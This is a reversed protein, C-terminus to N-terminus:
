KDPAFGSDARTMEAETFLSHSDLRRFLKIDFRLTILAFLIIFLIIVFFLGIKLM